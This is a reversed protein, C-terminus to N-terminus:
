GNGDQDGGFIERDEFWKERRRVDLGEDKGEWGVRGNGGAYFVDFVDSVMSIKGDDVCEGLELVWDDVPEVGGRIWRNGDEGIEEEAPGM